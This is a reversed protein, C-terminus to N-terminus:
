TAYPATKAFLDGGADRAVWTDYFQLPASARYAAGTAPADRWRRLLATWRGLARGVPEPVGYAARLHEGYLRRQVQPCRSRVTIAIARRTPRSGTPNPRKCTSLVHDFVAEHGGSNHLLNPSSPQAHRLWLTKAFKSSQRRRSICVQRSMQRIAPRDFDMGCALDADHHLLRAAGAACFFVDNLFLVRDARFPAEDGGRWVRSAAAVTESTANLGAPQELLARAHDRDQRRSQGARGAPLSAEPAAEAGFSSAAAQQRFQLTSADSRNSRAAAEYVSTALLRRGPQDAATRQAAAAGASGGPRVSHSESASEWLPELAANRAAALFAIRDRGEARVLSGNAVVRHPVGLAATLSALVELWLGACCLLISCLPSLM